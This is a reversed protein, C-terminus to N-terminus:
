SLTMVDQTLRSIIRESTNGRVAAGLGQRRMTGVVVINAGINKAVDVIVDEPSGQKVHVFQSDLDSERALRGVDPYDLSSSYANVIHMESGHLRSAWQTGEILRKNMEIHREDDAQQRVAVLIRKREDDTDPQVIMVPCSSQRLLEWKADSFSFRKLTSNPAVPLLIMNAQIRVAERLISKQWDTCWSFVLEYDLGSEDLQGLLGVLWAKNRFLTDNEVGMDVAQNEVAIFIFVKQEFDLRKKTSIARELAIHRDHTPDVVVLLREPRSM